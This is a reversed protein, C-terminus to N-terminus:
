KIIKNDSKEGNEWEGEYIIEEGLFLRGDGSRVDDAFNGKYVYGNGWDYIGYGHKKDIM